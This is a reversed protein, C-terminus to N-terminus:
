YVKLFQVFNRLLRDGLRAYPPYHSQTDQRIKAEGDPGLVKQVDENCASLIKEIDAQTLEFHYQFGFLRNKFRFAQNKCSKTSSLL